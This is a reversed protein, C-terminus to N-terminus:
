AFCGEKAEEEVGAFYGGEGGVVLKSGDCLKDLAGATV